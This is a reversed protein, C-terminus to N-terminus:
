SNALALFVIKLTLRMQPPGLLYIMVEFPALFHLISYFIAFMRADKEFGWPDSYVEFNMSDSFDGIGLTDM